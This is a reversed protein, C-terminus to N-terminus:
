SLGFPTVADSGFDGYTKNPHVLLKAGFHLAMGRPAAGRRMWEAPVLSLSFWPPGLPSECFFVVKKCRSKPTGGAEGCLLSGQSLREFLCATPGKRPARTPEM